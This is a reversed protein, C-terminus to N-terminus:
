RLQLLRHSTQTYPQSGLTFLYKGDRNTAVLACGPIEHAAITDNIVTEFDAM